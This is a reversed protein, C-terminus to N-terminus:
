GLDSASKLADFDAHTSSELRPIRLEGGENEWREIDSQKSYDNAVKTVSRKRHRALFTRMLLRRM